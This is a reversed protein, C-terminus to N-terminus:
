RWLVQWGYPESRTELRPYAGALATQAAVVMKYTLRDRSSGYAPYQM